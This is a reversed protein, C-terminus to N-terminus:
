VVALSRICAPARTLETWGDAERVLVRGRDTGALVRGGDPDRAFTLVFEAPGGPYDAATWTEGDDASEYLAADAGREGVWTGTPGTAAATYLRGDLSTAERVYRRPRTDGGVGFRDPDGGTEGLGLGTDAAPDIRSWSEGTDTTRYLGYGTSAIFEDPGRLHLGHIDDHVEGSRDRWTEGRDDSLHVGGAEIGAVLRDPADPHTRLARVRAADDHRPTSWTEAAPVERIGGLETWTEGADESRYLHVPFTGAYLRAGDTSEAVSYVPEHPVGTDTWTAGDDTSRYLGRETAAYCATELARVRPVTLGGGGSLTRETVREGDGERWRFVGDNTALLLM